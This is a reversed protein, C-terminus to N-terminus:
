LRKLFHPSIFLFIKSLINSISKTGVILMLTFMLLM